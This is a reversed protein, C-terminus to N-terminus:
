PDTVSRVDFSLSRDRESGRALRVTRPVDTRHDGALNELLLMVSGLDSAAGQIQYGDVSADMSTLWVHRPALNGLTAIREGLSPGSLRIARLRRDEAVLADLNGAELKLAAVAERSRDFREQALLEIALADRLRSSELWAGIIAVCCLACGAAAVGRLSRPLRWHRLSEIADPMTDHLFDFSTM